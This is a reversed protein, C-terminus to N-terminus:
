IHLGLSSRASGTRLSPGLSPSSSPSFGRLRHPRAWLRCPPLSWALPVATPSPFGRFPLADILLAPQVRFPVRLAFSSSGWPRLCPAVFRGMRARLFGDLHHSVVFASRTECTAGTSRPSGFPSSSHVRVFLVVSPRMSFGMLPHGPSRAPLLLLLRRPWSSSTIEACRSSCRSSSRWIHVDSLRPRLMLRLPWALPHLATTHVTGLAGGRILTSSWPQFARSSRQLGM